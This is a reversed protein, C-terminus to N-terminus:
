WHGAGTGADIAPSGERLRLDGAADVVLTEARGTTGIVICATGQSAWIEV